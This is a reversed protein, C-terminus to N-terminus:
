LTYYFIIRFLFVRILRSYNSPDHLIVAMRLKRTLMDIKLSVKQLRTNFRYLSWSIDGNSLKGVLECLM